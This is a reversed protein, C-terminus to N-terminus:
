AASAAPCARELSRSAISCMMPKRCPPSSASEENANETDKSSPAETAVSSASSAMTDSAWWLASARRAASAIISASAAVSLALSVRSAMAATTALFWAGAGFGTWRTSGGDGGDACARGGSPCWLGLASALRRLRSSPSPSAIPSACGDGTTTVGSCVAVGVGTRELKPDVSLRGTVGGLSPLTVLAVCDRAADRVSNASMASAASAM